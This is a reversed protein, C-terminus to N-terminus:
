YGSTEPKGRETGTISVAVGTAGHALENSVHEMVAPWDIAMAGTWAPLGDGSREENMVFSVGM